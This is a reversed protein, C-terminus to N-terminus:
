AEGTRCSELRNTNPTNANPKEFEEMNKLVLCLIAKQAEKCSEQLQHCELEFEPKEKDMAMLKGLSSVHDIRVHEGLAGCM